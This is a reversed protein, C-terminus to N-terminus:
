ASTTVELFAAMEEVNWGNKEAMKMQTELGVNEIRRAGMGMEKVARQM